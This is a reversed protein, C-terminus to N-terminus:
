ANRLAKRRELPSLSDLNVEQKSQKVEIPTELIKKLAAALDVNQKNVSELRAKLDNIENRQSDMQAQMEPNVATQEAPKEEVKKVSTILGGVVSIVTGDELTYDGDEAAVVGEESVVMLPAGEVFETESAVMKGDKTKAEVSLKIEKEEPKVSESLKAHLEKIENVLETPLCAELKLAIKDKLENVNM